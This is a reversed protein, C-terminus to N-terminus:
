KVIFSVNEHLYFPQLPIRLWTYLRSIKSAVREHSQTLPPLWCKQGDQLTYLHVIFGGSANWQIYTKYINQMFPLNLTKSNIISILM